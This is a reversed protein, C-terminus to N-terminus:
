PSIALFPISSNQAQKKAPATDPLSTYNNRTSVWLRFDSNQNLNTGYERDGVVAPPKTEGGVLVALWLEKNVTQAPLPTTFKARLNGATELQSAIDGTKALLKGTGADYVGLYCDTLGTGPTIVATLANGAETNQDVYVRSLYIIGKGIGPTGPMTAPDGTAAVMGLQTSNWGSKNIVQTPAAPPSTSACATLAVALVAVATIRKIM